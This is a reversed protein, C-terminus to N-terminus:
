SVNEQRVWVFKLNLFIESRTTPCDPLSGSDCTTGMPVPFAEPIHASFVDFELPLRQLSRRESESGCNEIAQPSRGGWEKGRLKGRSINEGRGRAPLGWKANALTARPSVVANQSRDRGASRLVGKLVWLRNESRKGKTSLAFDFRKFGQNECLDTVLNNIIFFCITPSIRGSAM